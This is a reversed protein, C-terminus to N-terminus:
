NLLPSWSIETFVVFNVMEHVMVPGVWTSTSYWDHASVTGIITCWHASSQQRHQKQQAKNGSILEPSPIMLDWHTFLEFIEHVPGPGLWASTSYWDHSLGTCYCDARIYRTNTQWYVGFGMFGLFPQFFFCFSSSVSGTGRYWAYWLVM